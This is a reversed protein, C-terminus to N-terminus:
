IFPIPDCSEIQLSFYIKTNEEFHLMLFRFSFYFIQLCVLLSTFFHHFHKSRFCSFDSFPKQNYLTLNLSKWLVFIYHRYFVYTRVNVFVTYECVNDVFDPKGKDLVIFTNLKISSYALCLLHMPFRRRNRCQVDNTKNAIRIGISQMSVGVSLIWPPGINDVLRYMNSRDYPDETFTM